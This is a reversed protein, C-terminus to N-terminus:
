NVTYYGNQESGWPEVTATFLIPNGPSISITYTYHKEMEWLDHLSGLPVDNVYEVPASSSGAIKFTYVVRLTASSGKLRQPLPLIEGSTPYTAYTEKDMTVNGDTLVDITGSGWGLGWNGARLVATTNLTKLSISKLVIDYLNSPDNKRVRFDVKCLAHHFILPVTGNAPDGGRYSQNKAIESVLLDKSGDTTFQIDPIGPITNGYDDSSNTERLKLISTDGYYPSYAWFTITNEANNPWYKVPSYTWADDNYTVAQDYMFNSTWTLPAWEGASGGIVGPQYFAFVRFNNYIASLSTTKTAEEGAISVSFHIPKDGTLAEWDPEEPTQPQKSCAALGALTLLALTAIRYATKKLM